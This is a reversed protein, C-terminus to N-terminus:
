RNGSQGSTRRATRAGAAGSGPQGAPAGRWPGNGSAGPLRAAVRTGPQLKDVGEIVVTEGASLGGTVAANDGETLRVDVTRLEVRGDQKVVYVFTSQQNRQIAAAPVVVVGRLTDLLLRANVFQNPFLSDDENTFVAKLRVTGTTQDIANDITLLAGTALRNTSERDWAEVPLPRNSRTQQLVAQLSDEPITFLVAIPQRETIVVLGNPDSEHVINGADVLRLGVRGTVPATIRSYTLNLKASEISGQDSKVAGEFQNVTAAQTDLQQKPVADQAYLAQYRQLDMQANKLAAEDKALQGDAQILQVQFPRPDIQALLEGKRVLQGERFNVAVLQGDVRSRITVTNLSTVSGLGDLYIPMDGLRAVAAVVPVTPAGGRGARGGGTGRAPSDAPSQGHTAGPLLVYGVVAATCLAILWPWLHRRRDTAPPTTDTAVAAPAAPRDSESTNPTNM